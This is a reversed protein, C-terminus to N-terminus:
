KSRKDKRGPLLTRYKYMHSWPTGGVFNLKSNLGHYTLGVDCKRVNQKKAFVHHQYFFNCHAHLASADLKPYWRSKNTSKEPSHLNKITLAQLIVLPIHSIKLDTSSLQPIYQAPSTTNKKLRNSASTWM